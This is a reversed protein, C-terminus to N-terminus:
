LWQASSSAPGAGEPESPSDNAAGAVALMLVLSGKM